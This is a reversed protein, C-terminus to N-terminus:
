NIVFSPMFPLSGASKQAAIKQPGKVRSKSRVQGLMLAQMYDLKVNIDCQDQNQWVEMAEVVGCM